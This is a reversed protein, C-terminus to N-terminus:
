NRLLHPRFRGVLERDYKGGLICSQGPDWTPPGVTLFGVPLPPEIVGLGMLWQQSAPTPSLEPSPITM